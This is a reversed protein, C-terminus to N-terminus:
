RVSAANRERYFQDSGHKQAAATRASAADDDGTRPSIVGHNVLHQLMQWFPQAQAQGTLMRTSIPEGVGQEGLRELVARVKGEQETWARRISAM